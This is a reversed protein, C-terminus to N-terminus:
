QHYVPAVKGPRVGVSTMADSGEWQGGLDEEEEAELSEESVWQRRSAERCFHHGRLSDCRGVAVLPCGMCRARLVAGGQLIFGAETSM